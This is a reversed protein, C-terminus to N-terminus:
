RDADMIDFDQLAPLQVPEVAKAFAVARSRKNRSMLHDMPERWSPPLADGRGEGDLILAVLFEENRLTRAKNLRREPHHQGSLEELTDEGAHAKREEVRFRNKRLAFLVRARSVNVESAGDPQVLKYGLM